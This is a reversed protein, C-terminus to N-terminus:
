SRLGEFVDHEVGHGGNVFSLARYYTPTGWLAKHQEESLHELLSPSPLQTQHCRVAQWVTRWHCSADIRTTIQWAPWGVARREVEEIRMVLDGFALQYAELFDRTPAMFYLKSVSHSALDPVYASDSKAAAVMAATTLQSIAIHDPHGYCGDPGFTVVVHPQVRRLHAVIKAV